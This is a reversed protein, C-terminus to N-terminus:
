YFINMKFHVLFMHFFLFIIIETSTLIIFFALLQNLYSFQNSQLFDIPFCAHIRFKSYSRTTPLVSLIFSELEMSIM